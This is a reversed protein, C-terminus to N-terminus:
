WFAKKKPKLNVGLAEQTRSMQVKNIGHRLHTDSRYKSVEILTRLTHYKQNPYELVLPWKRTDVWADVTNLLKEFVRVSDM